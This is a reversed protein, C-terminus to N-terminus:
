TQTPKLKTLVAFPNESRPEERRAAPEAPCELAAHRAVIPLALLLEDEVLSAIEVVGGPWEYPEYDEPLEPGAATGSVLGLRLGADVPWAMPQLCRQCLLIVTARVRGRLYHVGQGDVGGELVYEVEGTPEALLAPLRPLAAIPM